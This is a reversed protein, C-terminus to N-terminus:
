EQRRQGPDIGAAELAEKQDLYFTAQRIKGDLVTWVSASETEVAVGGHKTKGVQRVLFVLVENHVIVEDIELRFDDYPSIWDTLAQRFGEVGSYTTPEASKAVMVTTFEPHANEELVAAMTEIGQIGELRTGEGFLAGEKIAEILQATTPVDNM